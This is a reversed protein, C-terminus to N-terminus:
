RGNLNSLVAPDPGFLCVEHADNTLRVMRELRMGLKILLQLSVHNDPSVIAVIRSLGFEERGYELTACAAECAFGRSRFQPLFAFGIDVDELADRKILGCIGIPVGSNLLEVRWLGFGYQAYSAIPGQQLYDRADDPTRVGRDGIHLLWDPDNVLEHIFGADDTSLQRLILRETRIVEVVSM